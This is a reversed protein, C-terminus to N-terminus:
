EEKLCHVPNIKAARAAQLGVTLWAVVLALLGAVGFYWPNLEIQYAFSNLWHKVLLYSLPLALCIAIIVLKSFESSLLYVISFESAGLVKRVGIEKRRREATFAALGFLGLCSILIALGAFYRSLAAVRQEAVYQAQYDADLFQYDFVFGPNFEKYFQQLRALTEKEQGAAVKALVVTALEPELTFLLPEVKEHLSKYHFDKVVGIIEFEMGNPGKVIKGVPEPLSLAKVFAENVVRKKTDAGFDRSFTRGAVVPIGLTEILGYNVRINHVPIQKGDLTIPTNEAAAGFGGIFKDIKGSANVVGPIKKIESLFTKVNATVKGEIEFTIIQDKDYGLNKNQVYQIQRYVVLVSVIFIISLAFQFVVLGKRAWVENGSRNLKGKLIAVPNFGSLYLAPYSGAIIGTIFTIGLVSLILNGDFHLALQKGTIQNFQPLFLVVLVIALVLSLSTLLLAEGLYQSILIKRSAGLTKQIGVEKLRRSARATALNMFNICAIVLIFVAILSFLKVYELRTPVPVGNEYKGYLYHRSYPELFLTRHQAKSSKNKLFNAIKQNFLELNTGKKLVVYTYFPEPMDWNVGMNMVDKEFAEFNLIFDFEESSNAPIGKFIGSIFVTKKVGMTEWEVPKGLVNKTTGFLRQAMAESIVLANKDILVQNKDGQTLPFSFMKFYDKGVFKGTARINNGKYNLTFKPFFAPPTVTAAYEVEPMEAALATALQHPTEPKTTIGNADRWNEMVRFLQKDQEHFKDFHWEDYVWLYIALACALGSSLGILNILFTGKFRLFHRYILLFTHRIM